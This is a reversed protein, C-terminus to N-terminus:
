LEKASEGLVTLHIKGSDLKLELSRGARGGIDQAAIPISLKELAKVAAATNMSGINNKLDENPPFMEAGGIVKAILSTKFCGAHSLTQYLLPVATDAFKRPNLREQSIGTSDPLMIHAMGGIRSKPDYMAVIVCSGIGYAALIDPDRAIRLEAMGVPYIEPM